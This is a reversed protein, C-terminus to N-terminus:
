EGDYALKNWSNSVPPETVFKLKNFQESVPPETTYQLKNWGPQVGALVCEQQGESWVWGDDCAYYCLGTCGCTCTGPPNCKSQRINCSCNHNRQVGCTDNEYHSNPLPDPCNCACTGVGVCDNPSGCPYDKIRCSCSGSASCNQTYDPDFDLRQQEEVTLTRVVSPKLSLAIEGRKREEVRDVAKEALCLANIWDLKHAYHRVLKEALDTICSCCTM